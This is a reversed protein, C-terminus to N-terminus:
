NFNKFRKFMNLSKKVSEEINEKSDEDEVEDLDYNEFEEEYDSFEDEVDFDMDDEDESPIFEYKDMESFEDMSEHIKTNTYGKVDGKGNVTIGGKDNAFDQVYLPQEKPQQGYMTVYGDYITKHKDLINSREENSINVFYASMTKEKYIYQFM